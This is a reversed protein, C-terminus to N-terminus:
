EYITYYIVDIKVKVPQEFYKSLFEQATIITSQDIEGVPALLQLEIYIINKTSTPSKKIDVNLSQPITKEFLNPKNKRLVILSHRVQAKLIIKRLSIDLPIYLIFLAFISIFLGKFANLFSGYSQFLFVLSACFIIGTLNTLFLLFAGIALNNDDLSLGIDASIKNGLSLGIGVVSLPPVLAVAIAVGPLANAISKRTYAFAAAAGAAMAVGLDLLNPNGRAIIERRAISLDIINTTILALVITVIVGTTITLISRRILLQNGTVISYALSMIPNMLPAVIMAGIITATSDGLLGLTAIITSLMLMFYFGFSPISNQEFSSSLENKSVPQEQLFHWDGTNKYWFDSIKNKLTNIKSKM